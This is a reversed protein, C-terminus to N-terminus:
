VFSFWNYLDTTQPINLKKRIRYKKNQVTRIEIFKLEAIKKTSLNLKLLACFEIESKTLSPDIQLLKESFNPYLKEFAFMFGPDDKRIMEILEEYDTVFIEKTKQKKRFLYIWAGFVLLILVGISYFLWLPIKREKINETEKDKDLIKQLSNYKSELTSLRIEKLKGEFFATQSSDGMKKYVETLNLYLEELNLVEGNVKSLEYSKLFFDLAEEMKKEEKCVLGLVFYNTMMINDDPAGKPKLANSKLAYYKAKEPDFLIYTNALNSYNIYQYRKVDEPDPLKDYSEVVELLKEVAKEPQGTYNYVNAFGNLANVKTFFVRIDKDDGKELVKLATELETISQDYLQNISYTEALYIHAMGQMQINNYEESRKKLQEATVGLKEVDRKAYFYRCKRDLIRLELVSDKLKISQQLLDDIEKNAEDLNQKFLAGNAIVKQELEKRADSQQSFLSASFFFLVIYCFFVKVCKKNVIM